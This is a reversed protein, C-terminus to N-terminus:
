RAGGRRPRAPRAKRKAAPRSAATPGATARGTKVPACPPRPGPLAKPPPTPRVKFHLLPVDTNHNYFTWEGGMVREAIRLLVGLYGFLAAHARETVAGSQVLRIYDFLNTLKRAGLRVFVLYSGVEDPRRLAGGPHSCRTKIEFPALRAAECRLDTWTTASSTYPVAIRQPGFDALLGNPLNVFDCRPDLCLARFRRYTEAALDDPGRSTPAM